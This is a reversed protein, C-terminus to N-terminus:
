HGLVGFGSPATDVWSASAFMVTSAYSFSSSQHFAYATGSIGSIDLGGTNTAPNDTTGNWSGNNVRVYFKNNTRDIAVGIRDNLGSNASPGPSGGFNYLVNHDDRYGGANTSGLLGVTLTASTNGCGIAMFGSGASGPYVTWVIEFYVKGTIGDVSMVGDVGSGSANTAILPTTLTIGASKKGSDWTTAIISGGGSATVWNDIGM